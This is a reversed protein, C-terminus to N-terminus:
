SEGELYSWMQRYGVCRISPLDTHMPLFRGSKQKLGSALM